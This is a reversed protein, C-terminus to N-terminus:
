RTKDSLMWAMGSVVTALNSRCKRLYADLSYGGFDDAPWPKSTGQWRECREIEAQILAGAKTLNRMATSPKWWKRDWTEPWFLLVDAPMYYCRAVSFLEGKVYTDDRDADFEHFVVQRRREGSILMRAKTVLVDNDLDLSM